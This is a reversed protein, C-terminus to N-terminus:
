ITRPPLPEPTSAIGALRLGAPWYAVVDNHVVPRGAAFRDPLVAGEVCCAHDTCDTKMGSAPEPCRIAAQPQAAAPCCGMAVIAMSAESASAHAHRSPAAGTVAFALLVVLLQRLLKVM